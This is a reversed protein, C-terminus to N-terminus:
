PLPESLDDLNLRTLGGADSFATMSARQAERHRFYLVGVAVGIAITIAFILLIWLVTSIAVDRGTQAFYRELKALLFPDEGLWQVTKGYSIQDLLANAAAADAADFVLASYNGIRRYAISPDTGLRQRFAEDAAISLQPNTYELILLTGAPYKASVAETGGAFDVLELVPREGLANRLAQKDQIFIASDKVTEWDPLHKLLVPLGDVDSVEQSKIQPNREQQAFVGIVAAMTLVISFFVIKSLRVMM